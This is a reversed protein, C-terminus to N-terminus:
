QEDGEIRRGRVIERGSFRRRAEQDWSGTVLRRRWGEGAAAMVVEVRDVMSCGHRRRMVESRPLSALIVTPSSLEKKFKTVRASDTARTTPITKQPEISINAMSSVLSNSKDVNANTSTSKTGQFEEEFYDDEQESSGLDNESFSRGLGTPSGHMGSVDLPCTSAQNIMIETMKRRILILHCHNMQNPHRKTFRICFKLLTYNDTTKVDVHSLSSLVDHLDAMNPLLPLCRLIGAHM